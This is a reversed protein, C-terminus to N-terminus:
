CNVPKRTPILQKLTFSDARLWFVIVNVDMEVSTMIERHPKTQLKVPLFAVAQYNYEPYALLPTGSHVSKCPM